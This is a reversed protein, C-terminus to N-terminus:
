HVWLLAAVMGEVAICAAHRRRARRDTLLTHGARMSLFTLLLSLM